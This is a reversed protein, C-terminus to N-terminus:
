TISNNMFMCTIRDAHLVELEDICLFMYFLIWCQSSVLHTCLLLLMLVPVSSYCFDLLQVGTPRVLSLADLGLWSLQFNKSWLRWWTQPGVRRRALQLLCCVQEVRTWHTQITGNKKKIFHAKINFLTKWLGFNIPLSIFFLSEFRLILILRYMHVLPGLIINIYSSIERYLLINEFHLHFLFVFLWGLAIAYSWEETLPEIYVYM